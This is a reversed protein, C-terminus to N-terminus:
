DRRELNDYLRKQLAGVDIQNLAGSGALDLAHAAAAGMAICPGMVRVSSLGAPDGDIARGAAILNDAGPPLMASLPVYHMHDDGFQEWHVGDPRDHLEIPWSCRAVADPYRTGQRIEDAIIHHSGEIWRTQRIGLQSLTRIRAKGLADPYEARLFALLREAQQRGDAQARAFGLPDLPTEAHTMNVLVTGQGPAAFLFGDHRRIGAANGKAELRRQLEQRDLKALAAEDAGELVMMQTGYVPTEPVRCPLGAEWTLAADGSADVFGAARVTVPGFRTALDLGAIRRGDRRVGTLVAGLLVQAGSAVVAREAWRALATESYQVIITNRRGRIPHLAGEAGLERLIDDAIGHTVLYPEPGNSYLGCFTGIVAGVSQGGLVPAADILVVRRGLKAAEIAASLGAAGAGLVAIDAEVVTPADAAKRVIRTGPLVTRTSM